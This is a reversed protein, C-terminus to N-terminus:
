LSIHKHQSLFEEVTKKKLVLYPLMQRCLSVVNLRSGISWTWQAKYNDHAEYKKGIGGVGTICRIHELTELSTNPVSLVWNPFRKRALYCCLSGEGDFFGALWAAETASMNRTNNPHLYPKMQMAGRPNSGRDVTDSVTTRGNFSLAAYRVLLRHM